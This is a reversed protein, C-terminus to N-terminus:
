NVAVPTSKIQKVFGVLVDEKRDKDKQFSTIYDRKALATLLENNYKTDALKFKHKSRDSFTHYVEDLESFMSALENDKFLSIQNLLLAYRMDKELANWAADALSRGISFTVDKLILATDVELNEADITGLVAIKDAESFENDVLIENIEVTHLEIQDIANIFEKTKSKAYKIRLEPAATDMEEWLELSFLLANEEILISLKEKDFSSISDAYNNIEFEQICRRFDDGSLDIHLLGMIIEDTIVENDADSLFEDIHREFFSGLEKEPGFMNDFAIYNEWSPKIKDCELLKKWLLEKNETAGEESALCISIDDWITSEKELLQLCLDISNDSLREIIDEMSEISEQTNTVKGLVVNKIYDGFFNKDQVYEILPKFDAELIATYNQTDLRDEYEPKKLAFLRHLMKSNLVYAWNEIIFNQINEDIGQIDVDGFKIEREEILAIVKDSPAESIKKLSDVDSILLGTLSDLTDDEEDSEDDVWEIDMSAIDEIDAYKLMNILYKYQKEKTMADDAVLLNWFVDNDECICKFFVDLNKDREVFAKIFDMSEQSQDKLKEFLNKLALSAGNELVYDVMDYNFVEVQKFEYDQLMAYVREPNSITYTYDGVSRHNRIGLIFNMDDKTISNPHFYNIYNEFNEEIYGNRLMFVLLDNEKVNDDLFDTGFEAIIQKMSYSKLENIKKEYEEVARRSDNKCKEIGKEIREIRTFYDGNQKVVEEPNSISISSNRNPTMSYVNLNKKLKEVDFDDQLVNELTYQKGDIYVMYVAAKFGILSNILALKLEKISKLAEREIEALIEKEKQKKKNILENQRSIQDRKNKFARRILSSASEDELEAFDNPYLNKYIVLSLMNEDILNLQQAGKLTNKFINFENCISMLDRMDSIYPSVLSIYKESIDYSAASVKERLIEGSNVSSIYPVIPIIFDFFKTREGPKKFMDDKIAYVFKVSGHIKENNNIVNNLERLAVFIISNEFRDLDEIIVIKKKTSEFFYVIEDMNKNFISEESSVASGLTAKDLIKIEKISGSRRFWGVVCALVYFAALALVTYVTKTKYGGFTNVLDIFGKANKPFSFYLMAPIIVALAIAILTSQWNKGAQLKRYRSQPVKNADVSYFLQKLIAAELKDEDVAKKTVLRGLELTDESKDVAKKTVPKGLELTDESEDLDFTALSIYIVENDEYKKLYTKIASSKGSGYPGSVAINHINPQSLAWGLAALYEEGHGINDTPTLAEYIRGSERQNVSNVLAKKNMKRKIMGFVEKM